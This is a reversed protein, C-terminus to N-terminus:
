DFADVRKVTVRGTFPAVTIQYKWQNFSLDVTGGSTPSGLVGFRLSSSGGFDAKVLHVGQFRPDNSLNMVDKGSGGDTWPTTLVNGNGDTLEYSNNPVNFVVVRAAEHAVAENQATLIDAVISRTAAQIVLSESSLLSPVVIGAAIGIVTLTVLIEVLTFGRSKSNHHITQSM